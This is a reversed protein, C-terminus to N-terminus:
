LEVLAEGLVELSRTLGAPGLATGLAAAREADAAPLHRDPAGMQALFAERLRQILTEGLARSERGAATAEAVAVLAAGADRAAMAALIVEVPEGDAVVGGMASVQDLASLT